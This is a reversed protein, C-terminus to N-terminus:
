ASSLSSIFLNCDCYKLVLLTSRRLMFSASESVRFGALQREMKEFQRNLDTFPCVPFHHEHSTDRGSSSHRVALQRDRSRGGRRM